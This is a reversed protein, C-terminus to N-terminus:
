EATAKVRSAKALARRINWLQADLSDVHPWLSNSPFNKEEVLKELVHLTGLFSHYAPVAHTIESDFAAGLDAHCERLITLRMEIGHNEWDEDSVFRQWQDKLENLWGSFFEVDSLEVRCADVMSGLKFLAKSIALLQEMFPRYQEKLKLEPMPLGFFQLIKSVLQYSEATTGYLAFYMSNVQDWVSHLALQVAYQREGVAIQARLEIEKLRALEQMLYEDAKATAEALALPLADQMVKNRWSLILKRVLVVGFAILVLGALAALSLLLSTKWSQEFAQFMMELISPIQQQQSM